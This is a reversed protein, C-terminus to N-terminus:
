FYTKILNQFNRGRLFCEPSMKKGGSPTLELIRIAGDGTKIVLGKDQNAYLVTGPPSDVPVSKLISSNESDFCETSSARVHSISEDIPMCNEASNIKVPGSETMASCGPWLSYAKIQNLIRKTSDAWNIQGDAKKIIPAYSSLSDDQPTKIASGGYIQSLAEMLTKAGLKSLKNHLSQFDENESIELDEQLIIDGTDLGTDMQMITIGTKRDGALIAAHIPSAGRYKPLLSAHVNVSGYVPLSLFRKPLIHGYAAVVFVDANLKNLAGYLENNKRLTLPEHVVTGHSSAFQKVPSPTLKMKRGQPKDPQTCVALVEHQKCLSELSPVAFEPTGFFVIRM